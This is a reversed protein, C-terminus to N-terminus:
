KKAPIPWLMRGLICSFQLFLKLGGGGGGGKFLKRLGQYLWIAISRCIFALMVNNNNICMKTDPQAAPTFVIPFAYPPSPSYLRAAWTYCV